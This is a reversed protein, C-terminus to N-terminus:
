RTAANGAPKPADKLGPAQTITTLLDTQNTVGLVRQANPGQAAIRVQAGTHDQSQMHVRTAYSITMFSGEKTILTSLAGPRQLTDNPKPVEVIQSTHALDATIIILTDPHTRASDLGVKIARDFAITEGIQGCPNEAHDQKDISAGEVQLFFGAKAGAPTQLLEIAKATMDALSPERSGRERQHETCSQPGTGPYLEARAGTWETTMNGDNFLGLLKRGPKAAALGAADGIVEYGRAQAQEIVTKGALPGGTIMQAFRLRGGGLLVDVDHEVAQEAISGPGDNDKKFLSCALMDAPGQCARNNVHAMLVGPTADTLEATSVNGVKLGARQALELITVLPTLDTSGAPTSIRGNSTKVGTAWGTGSAASDTVYDIRSPDSEDLAYTTYAGTYPLLDMNLRGNAGKEYNRAITIESDGMGDGIFLIVNRAKTAQAQVQVALIATALMAAGITSSTRM